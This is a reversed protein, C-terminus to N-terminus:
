APKRLLFLQIPSFDGSPPLFRFFGVFETNYLVERRTICPYLVRSVFYHTSLFNRPPVESGDLIDFQGAVRELFHQKDFWRNHYPVANEALGMEVRARNLTAAGDTFAEVLVLHGGPALVRHLEALARDQEAEELLNILCRESVVVDFAGSPLSLARVDERRVTCREVERRGALEVMDPTYDTGTLDVGPFRERIVGLLHGNGCGVELLSDMSSASSVLELCRLIAEVELERTTRDAMTSSAALAHEQAEKRYHELIVQDHGADTM